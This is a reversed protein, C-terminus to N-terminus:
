RVDRLMVSAEVVRDPVWRSPDLARGGRHFLSGAPGRVGAPLAELRMSVDVRRVRLLDTDYAATPGGQRWPGDWVSVVRSAGDFFEFRLDAIGDVMPEVAGAATVRVIVESGDPQRALEFRESRAEWVLSGAPYAASLPVAPTLSLRRRDTSRITFIDYRGLGDAIVATSGTSFGCVEGRAACPELASLRLASGSGTQDQGLAGRAGAPAVGLAVVSLAAGPGARVAPRVPVVAPVSAGDLGAGRLALVLSDVSMRRRHQQDLAAPTAEFSRRAPAVVGAVAGALLGALMMAVLLEILTFGRATM